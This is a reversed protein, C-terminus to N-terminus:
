RRQDPRGPSDAEHSYRMLARSSLQRTSSDTAVFRSCSGATSPMTTLVRSTVSRRSVSAASRAVVVRSSFRTCFRWAPTSTSSSARRMATTFLSRQVPTRSRHAAPQAARSRSRPLGRAGGRREHGLRLPEPASRPASRPARAPARRPPPTRRRGCTRARSCGSRRRGARGRAGTSRGRCRPGCPPRARPPAAARRPSGPTGASTRTGRSSSGRPASASSRRARWRHLQQEVRLELWVLAVQRPQDAVRRVPEQAHHVVREVQRLISASFSSGLSTSSSRM